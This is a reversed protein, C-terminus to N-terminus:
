RVWFPAHGAGGHRLLLLEAGDVLQVNHLDGGVPGVLAVVVVVHHVLGLDALEPRHDVLDGLAVLLALGHQHAGHGDLLRLLEGVHQFLPADLVAHQVGINLLM